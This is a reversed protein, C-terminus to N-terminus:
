PDLKVSPVNWSIVDATLQKPLELMAHNDGPHSVPQALHFSLPAGIWKERIDVHRMRSGLGM